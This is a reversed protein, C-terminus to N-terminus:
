FRYKLAGPAYLRVEDPVSSRSPSPPSGAGLDVWEMGEMLEARDLEMGRMGVFERLVSWEEGEEEGRKERQAFGWSGAVRDIAAREEERIWREWLPVGQAWTVRDMQDNSTTIAVYGITGVHVVYAMIGAFAVGTAYQPAMTHQYTTAFTTSLTYAGLPLVVLGSLPLVASRLIKARRYAPACFSTSIIDVALELNHAAIASDLALQATPSPISSNIKSPSPTTHTISGSSSIRPISKRAYLDFIDPLSSPQHLLTQLEVYAKLVAPTIFVNAHRLVKEAQESILNLISAKSVFSPYSRANVSALLASTATAEEEQGRAPERSEDATDRGDILGKAQAQLQELVYLVRQEEPLKGAEVRVASEALELIRNHLANLDQHSVTHASRAAVLLSELVQVPQRRPSPATNSATNAARVRENHARASIARRTTTPPTPLAALRAAAPRQTSRLATLCERCIPLRVLEM